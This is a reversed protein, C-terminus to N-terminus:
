RLSRGKRVAAADRPSSRTAGRSRPSRTLSWLGASSSGAPPRHEAV